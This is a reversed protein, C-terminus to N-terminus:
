EDGDSVKKKSVTKKVTKKTSTKKKTEKKAAAEPDKKIYRCKPYGSCGVFTTGFRSKRKVLPKGCEPCDEGTPVPEEKVKNSKIYKCDPYNSCALFSGFRGKKMVLKSGCNPCVEDTENNEENEAKTYRCTPFNLCSIFRGYRGNRYVLESGCEPCAEGTRELEKKEMNEYAHDLLPMFQDYFERLEQINDRQGEAIEDLDKEMNATYSVNIISSFFEQLKKDTLIGQETPFFVKTKSGESAKELSVYGRAQITDIIMAYTSPRGIGKEEMDKILRAESYRAPPETFHQKGDLQVHELVEKEELDPLLEDKTQEYDKYIALYGDFTIISGNATFECGNNSITATVVDSKSPAMLYALARSYILKYLKYQDNTLYEKVSDPTNNVNTPRIAEHADQANQSNKQHVFGVYNKGFTNEIHNFADKVFVDSLRTSDTRMYSILGETHGGLSIGEYLKQAVQMTKKSSFGLKTSAEQQLTSTIFPLRAAKSKVKREIKDIVFEGNCRDLVKQTDEENKLEPKKGDVRILGAKFEKKNKKILADITWYEESKFAKIENEREVILRLAVSQVRGASKSQIKNQLLKSLKFGIIRDLMRRTEQSKVLNLDITRPHEFAELVANKTIENFIVRNMDATDLGLEQALHWSIAEGERDPDSALYVEDAKKARAKLDKVIEKKDSSVKYTPKFDDEVDIGLGGKGTTALDRIHGKSSVVSYDPGLYKEITKSKSPSEVIVLKKM